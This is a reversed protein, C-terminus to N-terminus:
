IRLLYRSGYPHGNTMRLIVPTEEIPFTLFSTLDVAVRVLM